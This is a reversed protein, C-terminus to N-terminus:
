SAQGEPLLDPAEQRLKEALWTQLLAQYPVGKREATQKIAEVYDAPLRLGVSKKVPHTRRVVIKQAVEELEDM